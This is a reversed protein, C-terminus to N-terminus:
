QQQKTALDHGERIHGWPSCGVLSRQGHSKGPLFVPTPQRKRRWRGLGPILVADGAIDPLNKVVSGGPFGAALPQNVMQWPRMGAGERSPSTRSLNPNIERGESCPFWENRM